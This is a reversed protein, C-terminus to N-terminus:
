YLSICSAQITYCLLIKSILNCLIYENDRCQVVAHKIRKSYQMPPKVNRAVLISRAFTAAM